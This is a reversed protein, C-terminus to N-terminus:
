SAHWMGEEWSRSLRMAASILGVQSYTQPFNGWLTGTDPEVDESLLGLHNRHALVNEFLALAEDRRGVSALADIYWFTCVLFASHPKGFDDPEVYRMVFGNRLLQQEIVALTALNTPDSGNGSHVALLANKAQQMDKAFAESMSQTDAKLRESNKANALSELADRFKLLDSHVHLVTVLEEDYQNLREAQARVVHFQWLVIVDGVLM